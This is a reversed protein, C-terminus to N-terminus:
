ANNVVLKPPMPPTAFRGTKSALAARGKAEERKGGGPAADSLIKAATALNKVVAARASLSVAKMMAYRRRGDKDDRTDEIILTEIEGRHTTSASLEDLMRGVLERGQSVLVKPDITAADLIGPRLADGAAEAPSVNGTHVVDPRACRSWQEAKARKRIAMDSMGLTKALARISVANEEYAVRIATWDRAPTSTRLTTPKKTRMDFKV